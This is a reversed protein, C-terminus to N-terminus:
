ESGQNQHCPIRRAKGRGRRGKSGVESGKACSCVIFNDLVYNNSELLKYDKCHGFNEQNQCYFTYTLKELTPGSPM